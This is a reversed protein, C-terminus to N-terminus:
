ATALFDFGKRVATRKMMRFTKVHAMSLRYTGTLVRRLPCSSADCGNPLPALKKRTWKATARKGVCASQVACEKSHSCSRKGGSGSEYEHLAIKGCMTPCFHLANGVYEAIVKPPKACASNLATPPHNSPFSPFIRKGEVRKHQNVARQTKSDQFIEYKEKLRSKELPKEIFNPPM